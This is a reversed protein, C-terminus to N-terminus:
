EGHGGGGEGRGLKAGRRVLVVLPLLALERDEGAILARVLAVVRQGVVAGRRDRFAIRM